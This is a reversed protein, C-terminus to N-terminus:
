SIYSFVCLSHLHIDTVKQLFLEKKMNIAELDSGGRRNLFEPLKKELGIASAGTKLKIYTYAFNNQAYNDNGKVWEGAIYNLFITQSM